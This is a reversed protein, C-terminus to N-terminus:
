SARVRHSSAAPADQAAVVPSPNMLSTFHVPPRSCQVRLPSMRSNRQCFFAEGFTGGAPVKNKTCPDDIADCGVKSRDTGPRGYEDAMSQNESRPKSVQVM